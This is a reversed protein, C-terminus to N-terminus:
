TQRARSGDLGWTEGASGAFFILFLFLLPLHDFENGFYRWWPVGHGPDWWTAFTLSLMYLAGLVSAFRVWLGLLLSIGIFLEVVGVTYGFLVAHPLILNALVPKFFGLASSDLYGHLYKEFGGHVFAGDFVKYQGFFLFFVSTAIRVLAITKALIGSNHPM